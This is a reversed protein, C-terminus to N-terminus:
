KGRNVSKYAQAFREVLVLTDHKMVNMNAISVVGTINISWTDALTKIKPNVELSVIQRLELKIDYAYWYKETEHTNINVYLIPRGPTGLWTTGAMTRIGASQLRKEIDSQLQSVSLGAKHAYEQINPQINEVLVRLGQLGVLTRRSTESDEAWAPRCFCCVLILMLLAPLPRRGNRCADIRM